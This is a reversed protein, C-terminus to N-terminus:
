EVSGTKAAFAAVQLTVDLSGSFYPDPASFDSDTRKASFAEIFILPTGSEIAHTIARIADINAEITLSMGIRVLEKDDVPSLIQFSLPKGGNSVVIDNMIKQLNAGAIGTTEGELLVGTSQGSSMLTENDARLSAENQTRRQLVSLTNRDEEIKESLRNAELIPAVAMFGLLTLVLLTLGIALFGRTSQTMTM